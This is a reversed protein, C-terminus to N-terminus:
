RKSQSQNLMCTTLNGVRTRIKNQWREFRNVVKGMDELIKELNDSHGAVRNLSFDSRHNYKLINAVADKMESGLKKYDSIISKIEQLGDWDIILHKNNHLSQAVTEGTLKKLRALCIAVDEFDGPEFEEDFVKEVM